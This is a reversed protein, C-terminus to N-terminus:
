FASGSIHEIKIKESFTRPSNEGGCKIYPKELFINKMNHEILQGFTM